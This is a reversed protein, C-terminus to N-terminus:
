VLRNECLEIVNEVLSLVTTLGAGGPVKTVFSAVNKVEDTLVDGVIKGNVRNIGVDIVTAGSKVMDATILGPRGAAVILIDALKTYISLDKTKSHCITVTCNKNLLIEAMPRGVIKSRGIVVANKGDYCTNISDLITIIGKPTCPLITKENSVLRGVNAINFGDVDKDNSIRDLIKKEDLHKYIPLQVLIAQVSDDNNLSDILNLVNNTTVDARLVYEEQMIGLRDCMKRKSKVYSKSSPEDNAVIIALKPIIGSSKVFSVREQLHAIRNEVIKNVDIIM